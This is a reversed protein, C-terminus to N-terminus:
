LGNCIRRLSYVPRGISVQSALVRIGHCPEKPASTEDTCGADDHTIAALRPWDAPAPAVPKFCPVVLVRSQLDMGAVSARIRSAAGASPLFDVDIYFVLDTAAVAVAHHRLINIPLAYARTGTDDTYCPSVLVIRLDGGARQLLWGSLAGQLLGLM